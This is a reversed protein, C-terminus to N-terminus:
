TYVLFNMYIKHIIGLVFDTIRILKSLTIANGYTPWAGKIRMLIHSSPVLFDDDVSIFATGM